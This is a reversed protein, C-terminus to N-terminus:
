SRNKHVRSFPDMMEIESATPVRHPTRIEMAPTVGPMHSKQVDLAHEWMAWDSDENGEAIQTGPMTPPASPQHEASVSTESATLEAPQTDETADTPKFM